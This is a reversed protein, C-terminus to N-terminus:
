LQFNSLDREHEFQEENVLIERNGYRRELVRRWVLLGVYGLVAVSVFVGVLIGASKTPEVFPTSATADAPTPTTTTTNVTLYTTATVNASTSTVNSAAPTRSTPLRTTRAPLGSTAPTATTPPVPSPSAAATAPTAAPGRSQSLPDAVRLRELDPGKPFRLPPLRATLTTSSAATVDPLCAVRSTALVLLVAALTGSAAAGGRSGLVGVVATRAM